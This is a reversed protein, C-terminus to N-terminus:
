QIYYKPLSTILHKDILDSYMNFASVTTITCYTEESCLINSVTAWITAVTTFATVNNEYSVLTHVCM